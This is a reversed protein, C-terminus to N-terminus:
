QSVDCHEEGEGKEGICKGSGGKRVSSGFGAINTTFSVSM